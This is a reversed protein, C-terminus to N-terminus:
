VNRTVCREMSVLQAPYVYGMMRNVNRTKVNNVVYHSVRSAGADVRVDMANGMLNLVTIQVTPQVHQNANKDMTDLMVVQAGQATVHLVIILVSTVDIVQGALFAPVLALISVAYEMLVDEEVLHNVSPDMSGVPVHVVTEQSPVIVTVTKRANHRARMGM